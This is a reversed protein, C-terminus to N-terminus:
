GEGKLGTQGQWGQARLLIDEVTAWTSDLRSRHTSRSSGSLFSFNDNSGLSSGTRVGADLSGLDSYTM